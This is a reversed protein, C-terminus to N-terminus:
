NNPQLLGHRLGNDTALKLAAGDFTYAAGVFILNLFLPQVPSLALGLISALSIAQCIRPAFDKDSNNLYCFWVFTDNDWSRKFLAGAIILKLIFLEM